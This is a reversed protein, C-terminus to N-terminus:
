PDLLGLRQAVTAAETRGQVGLKGLISSVHHAATKETIFLTEAIQRNTRGAAVLEIVERERTTLLGADRRRPASTEVAEELSALEIRARSALAEIEALLPRSGLKIGITRADRLAETAEIRSGRWGLTAEALRFLAYAQPYPMAATAFAAVAAKWASPDSQGEVRSMEAAGAAHWAVAQTAFNPFEAHAADDM